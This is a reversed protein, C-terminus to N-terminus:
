DEKTFIRIGIQSVATDRRSRPGCVKFNKTLTLYSHVFHLFLGVPLSKPKNKTPPPPSSCLAKWQNPLHEVVQAIGWTKQKNTKTKPPVPTSSLSEHQSLLNEVAQAVGSTIKSIPKQSSSARAPRL